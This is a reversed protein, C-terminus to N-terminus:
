GQLLLTLLVPLLHILWIPEEPCLMFLPLCGLATKKFLSWEDFVCDRMCVQMLIAFLNDMIKNERKKTQCYKVKNWIEGFLRQAHVLPWPINGHAQMYFCVCQVGEQLPNLRPPWPFCALVVCHPCYGPYGTDLDQPLVATPLGCWPAPSLGQTARSVALGLIVWWHCRGSGMHITSEPLQTILRGPSYTM